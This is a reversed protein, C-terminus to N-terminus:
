QKGKVIASLIMQLNALPPSGAELYRIIEQQEQKALRAM